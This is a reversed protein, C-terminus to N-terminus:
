GPMQFQLHCSGGSRHCRRTDNANFVETRNRAFSYRLRYKVVEIAASFAFDCEALIAPYKVVNCKTRPMGDRKRSAIQACPNQAEIKRQWEHERRDSVAAEHMGRAFDRSRSSSAPRACAVNEGRDGGVFEFVYLGSGGSWNEILEVEHTPAGGGFGGDFSRADGS